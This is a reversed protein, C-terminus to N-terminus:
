SPSAARKLDSLIRLASARQFSLACIVAGTTHTEILTQTYTHREAHM